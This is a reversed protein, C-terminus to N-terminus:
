ARREVPRVVPRRDRPRRIRGNCVAMVEHLDAAGVVLVGYGIRPENTLVVSGVIASMSFGVIAIRSPDVEPRGYAWDVLRRIDKVTDAFHEVMGALEAQFAAEDGAAGMADWDFLPEEGDVLLVNVTGESHARLGRAITDSPYSSVGWVPLVIVLPRAGGGKGQYYRASAADRGAGSAESPVLRLSRVLYDGADGEYTDVIASSDGYGTYDFPTAQVSIPHVM